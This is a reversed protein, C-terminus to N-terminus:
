RSAEAAAIEEQLQLLQRHAQELHQRKWDLQKQERKQEEQAKWLMSAEASADETLEEVEVSVSPRQDWSFCGEFSPDDNWRVGDDEAQYALDYTCREQYDEVCSFSKSGRMHPYDVEYSCADEISVYYKITRAIEELEKTAGEEENLQQKVLSAIKDELEKKDTLLLHEYANM